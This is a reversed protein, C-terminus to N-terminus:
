EVKFNVRIDITSEVASFKWKRLSQLLLQNLRPNNCPKILELSFSGDKAVYFRVIAYSNFAEQRLDEPIEPLPRAVITAIKENGKEAKHEEQTLSQPSKEDGNKLAYKEQKKVEVSRSVEDIMTADVEISTVNIPKYYLKLAFVGFVVLWILLALIFSTFPYKM